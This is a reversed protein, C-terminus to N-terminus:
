GGGGGGRSVEYQSHFDILVGCGGEDVRALGWVRV